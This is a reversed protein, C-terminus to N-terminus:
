ELFHIIWPSSCSYSMSVASVNLIGEFVQKRTRKHLHHFCFHIVVRCIESVISSIYQKSTLFATVTANGSISCCLHITWMTLFVRFYAAFLSTFFNAFSGFVIYVVGLSSVAHLCNSFTVSFHSFFYGFTMFFLFDCRLSVTICSPMFGM